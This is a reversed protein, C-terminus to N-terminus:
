AASFVKSAHVPKGSLLLNHKKWFDSFRRVTKRKEWLNKNMKTSKKKNKIIFLLHQLYKTLQM